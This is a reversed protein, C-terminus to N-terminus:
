DKANRHSTVGSVPLDKEQGPRVHQNSPAHPDEAQNHGQHSSGGEPEAIMDKMFGLEHTLRSAPATGMAM